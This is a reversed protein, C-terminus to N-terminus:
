EWEKPTILNVVSVLLVLLPISTLTLLHKMSTEVGQRRRAYEVRAPHSLQSLGHRFREHRSSGSGAPYGRRGLHIAAASEGIGRVKPKDEVRFLSCRADAGLGVFDAVGM